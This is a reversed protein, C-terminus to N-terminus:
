LAAEELDFLKTRQRWFAGRAEEGFAPWQEATVGAKELAHSLNDRRQEDLAILAMLVQQEVYDKRREPNDENLMQPILMFGTRIVGLGNPMGDRPWNFYCVPLPEAFGETTQEKWEPESVFAGRLLLQKVIEKAEDLRAM